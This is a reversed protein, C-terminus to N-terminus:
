PAPPCIAVGLTLGAVMMPGFLGSDEWSGRM